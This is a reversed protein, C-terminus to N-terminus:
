IQALEALDDATPEWGAAAVNAAVQEAKTAGAIVSAVAPKAALGGIAVTLPDLGREAGFAALREIRDWPAGALVREMGERALRTGAPPADGRRYKGTLLGMELPFFPLLGLGFRELAPVLEAEVSRDLLSYRNQASVFPTLHQTEAVWAADATQWGSFNSHGVYRVKGSRVLDDLAALTEEIPTTPDPQHLQYLDIYDTGLRRLSAEAARVIYRRSGRAGWDPGHLGRADMGFKTAVVVDDRHKGLAAGLAEESSGPTAGYIDATDFLTVGHDLAAAVVEASSAADIRGFQNCGIGVVSVTLGSRGLRRYRM